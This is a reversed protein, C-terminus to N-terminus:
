NESEEGRGGGGRVKLIKSKESQAINCTTALDIWVTKMCNMSGGCLIYKLAVRLLLVRNVLGEAAFFSANM